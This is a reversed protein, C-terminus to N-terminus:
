NPQGVSLLRKVPCGIFDACSLRFNHLSPLCRIAPPLSNWCDAYHFSISRLGYLTSVSPLLLKCYTSGRTRPNTQQDSLRTFSTCLLPSALNNLCRYTYCFRKLSYRKDIRAIQLKLFLPDSHHWYPLNFVARVARKSLLKILREMDAQALLSVYANSAYELDPQILSFSDNFGLIM